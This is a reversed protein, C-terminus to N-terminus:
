VKMIFLLALSPPTVDITVEHGHGGDVLEITKVTRDTGGGATETKFTAALTLGTPVKTTAATKERAGFADGVAHDASAGVPARGRLDPTVISGIGDSRQAEQGDCIAWGLPITEVAGYWLTITGIPLARRLQAPTLVVDGAIGTDAEEQTAFRVVGKAITTAPPNLFNTTGFTLQEVGAIPFAIDLAFGLLSGAAKEAIQQQQGYVAFLTGDALFLGFGRVGYTIEGADQVVLHVIGDGAVQGSVTAIRRFEGPLATLTPAVVFTTDTLGVTAITLDIDADAQAATFRGLGATTLVLKLATM